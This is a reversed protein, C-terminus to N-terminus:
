IIQSSPPLLKKLHKKKETSYEKKKISKRKVKLVQPNKKKKTRKWNTNM